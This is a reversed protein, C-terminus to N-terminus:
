PATGLWEVLYYALAGVSLLSLALPALSLRARKRAPTEAAQPDPPPALLSRAVRAPEAPAASSPRPAPPTPLKDLSALLHLFQIRTKGILLKAGDRLATPAEIRHEDVFVGWQSGLDEVFITGGRAVLRAHRRSVYEDEIVFDAQKSSRGITLSAGEELPLKVAQPPGGARPFVRLEPQGWQTGEALTNEGARPAERRLRWGGQSVPQDEIPTTHTHPAPARVVFGGRGVEVVVAAGPEFPTRAGQPLVVIPTDAARDDPLEIVLSRSSM